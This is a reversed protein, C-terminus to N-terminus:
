TPFHLTLRKLVQKLFTLKTADPLKAAPDLVANWTKYGKLGTWMAGKLRGDAVIAAKFLMANSGDFTSLFLSDGNV